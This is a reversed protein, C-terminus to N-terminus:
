KDMLKQEYKRRRQDYGGSVNKKMRERQKICMIYLAIVSLIITSGMLGFFVPFPNYIDNSITATKKNYAELELGLSVENREM